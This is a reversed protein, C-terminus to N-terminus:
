PTVLNTDSLHLYKAAVEHRLSQTMSKISAQLSRKVLIVSSWIRGHCVYLAQYPGLYSHHLYIGAEEHRLIQTM